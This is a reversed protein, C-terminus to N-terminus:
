EPLIRYVDSLKGDDEEKVREVGEQVLAQFYEVNERAFPYHVREQNQWYRLLTAPSAPDGLTGAQLNQLNKEWMADRQGEVTGNLDVSFLYADDYLYEGCESDFVLFDYRNFAANHIRGQADKYTIARPEDAYALYHEFILRDLKAYAAYKMRRKSELRGASQSLQLKRSYGSIASNDLGVFTDSIGILRKAHDYLREAQAIDKSIDPTTDVTGYDSASEGPRLKIVQGFVQNTLTIQADEPVIPTIASRMLKQLIRSEVKNIQQQAPRLYETDSQGLLQKDTSTNRRVVIPFSKPEYYPLKASVFCVGENKENFAYTDTFDPKPVYPLIVSGDAMEIPSHLTEHAEDVYEVKKNECDCLHTEKKCVACIERKRGYYRPTDELIADGSFVFRGIHGEDDKYFCLVVTVTDDDVLFDGEAEAEAQMATEKSIGYRRCLEERTTLFRLFCYEMDEVAFMNPQPIFDKPSLCSVRVAGIEKQSVASNDWEVLWISGGLIYTYREDIDNLEEFPLENRLQACLREVSKANRDNKESYRKPDIKPAPITSDIQSEIIEYTINRVASAQESAGDLMTSGKYQQQWLELKELTPAYKNKANEYLSRLFQLRGSGKEIQM